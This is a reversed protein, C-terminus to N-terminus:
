KCQTINFFLTHTFSGAITFVKANEAGAGAIAGPLRENFFNKLAGYNENDVFDWKDAFSLNLTVEAVFGYLNIGGREGIPDRSPWYSIRNKTTFYSKPRRLLKLDDYHHTTTTTLRSATTAPRRQRLHLSRTPQPTKRRPKTTATLLFGAIILPTPSTPTPQTPSDYTHISPSTMSSIAMSPVPSFLSEFFVFGVVAGLLLCVFLIKKLFKPPHQQWASM